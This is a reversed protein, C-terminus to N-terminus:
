MNTSTTVITVATIATANDIGYDDDVNKYCDNYQNNNNNIITTTMTMMMM